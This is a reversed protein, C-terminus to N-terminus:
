ATEYRQQWFTADYAVAGEWWWGGSVEEDAAVTVCM